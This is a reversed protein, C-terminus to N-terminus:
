KLITKALMQSAHDPLKASFIHAFRSKMSEAAPIEASTLGFFQRSSRVINLIKHHSYTRAEGMLAVVEERNFAESLPESVDLPENPKVTKFWDKVSRLAFLVHYQVM